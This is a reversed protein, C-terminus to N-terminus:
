SIVWPNTYNMVLITPKKAVLQNVYKVDVGNQSLALKLPSGDSEFLSKGSPIVWLLVVDAKEPKDVFEVDWKSSDTKFVNSAPAGKKPLYSEFYM